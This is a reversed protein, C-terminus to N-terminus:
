PSRQLYCPWFAFPCFCGKALATASPEGSQRATEQSAPKPSIGLKRESDSTLRDPIQSLNEGAHGDGSSSSQRRTITAAEEEERVERVPAVFRYGHKPVTEIYIVGDGHDNLAKRLMFVHHSLNAEEVFSEPWLHKMLEDKQLLRGRSEVLM